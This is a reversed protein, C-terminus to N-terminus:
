KKFRHLVMNTSDFGKISLLDNTMSPLVAAIDHVHIPTLRQLDNTIRHDCPVCGHAQPMNYPDNGMQYPNRNITTQFLQFVDNNKSYIPKINRQKCCSWQFRESARDFTKVPPQPTGSSKDIHMRCQQKGLADKYQFYQNCEICIRGKQLINIAQKVTYQDAYLNVNDIEPDEESRLSQM